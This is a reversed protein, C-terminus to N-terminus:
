NAGTAKTGSAVCGRAVASRTRRDQEGKKMNKPLVAGAAAAVSKLV